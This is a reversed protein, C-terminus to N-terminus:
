VMGLRGKKQQPKNETEGTAGPELQRKARTHRQQTEDFGFTLTLTDKTPAAEAPGDPQDNKFVQEKFARGLFTRLM